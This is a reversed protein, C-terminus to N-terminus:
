GPVGAVEGPQAVLEAVLEDSADEEVGARVGEVDVVADPCDGDGGEPGSSGGGTGGLLPRPQRLSRARRRAPRRWGASRCWVPRRPRQGQVGGSPRRRQEVARGDPSPPTTCGCGVRPPSRAVWLLCM